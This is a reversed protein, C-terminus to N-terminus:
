EFWITSATSQENCRPCARFVYSEAWPGYDIDATCEIHFTHGCDLVCAVNQNESFLVQQCGQCEFETGTQCEAAIQILKTPQTRCKPCARDDSTGM